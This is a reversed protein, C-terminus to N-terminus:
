EARGAVARLRAALLRSTPEDAVRADAALARLLVDLRDAVPREVNLLVRAAGRVTVLGGPLEGLPEERIEYGLDRALHTAEQFLGLTDEM